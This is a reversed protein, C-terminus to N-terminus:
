AVRCCYLALTLTLTPPLTVTLTLAHTFVHQDSRSLRALQCTTCRYPMDSMVQRNCLVFLLYSSVLNICNSRFLELLQYNLTRVVFLNNNLPQFACCLVDCHMPDVIVRLCQSSAVSWLRVTGDMSTSLLSDNSLSWV